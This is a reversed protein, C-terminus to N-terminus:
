VFGQKALCIVMEEIRTELKSKYARRYVANLCALEKRIISACKDLMQMTDLILGDGFIDRKM